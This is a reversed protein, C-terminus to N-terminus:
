DTVLSEWVVKLHEALYTVGTGAGYTNPREVVPGLRRLGAVVEDALGGVVKRARRGPTYIGYFTDLVATSVGGLFPLKEVLLTRAGHRAAAIAATGGASGSGVVVVDWAGLDGLQRSMHALHLVDPPRGPLPRTAGRRCRRRAEASTLRLKPREAVRDAPRRRGGRPRARRPPPRQDGAQVVELPGVGPSRSSASTAPAPPLGSNTVSSTSASRWSPAMVTAPPPASSAARVRGVVRRRVMRRRRPNRGPSVRRAAAMRPDPNERASSDAVVPREARSSDDARASAARRRRPTRRPARPGRRRGWSPQPLRVGVSRRTTSRTASTRESGWTPSRSNMERRVTWVWRAWTNALSPREERVWSAASAARRRWVVGVAEPLRDATGATRWRASPEGAPGASAPVTLRDRSPSRGHMLRVVPTMAAAAAAARPMQPMARRRPTSTSTSSAPSIRWTPGTSMRTAVM